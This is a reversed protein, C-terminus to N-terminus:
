SSRTAQQLQDILRQFHQYLDDDVPAFGYWVRDFITVIHELLGRAQPQDTIQRLHETNTLSPSFRIVGREDLLLLSALYLYRIAARYDGSIIADDARDQAASSTAPIDDEDGNTDVEAPQINLAQLLHSAFLAVAIIGIIMLITQALSPSFVKGATSSDRASDRSNDPEEAPAPSEDGYQFRDDQLVQDLTALMAEGSWSGYREGQFQRLATIRDRLTHLDDDSTDDGLRLWSVDVLIVQENSLRVVQVGAWLLNIQRLTAARQANAQEIAQGALIWSQDLRVWFDGADLPISDQAYSPSALVILIM